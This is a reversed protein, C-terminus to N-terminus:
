PEREKDRYRIALYQVPYAKVPDPTAKPLRLGSRPEPTLNELAELVHPPHIEERQRDLQRAKERERTLRARQKKAAAIEEQMRARVEGSATSAEKAKQADASRMAKAEWESVRQGMFAQCYAEGVYSGEVFLYLVSVDRRDYYLELDKGQLRNLLGPCVYWQGQFSLRSGDHVQYKHSRIKRNTAKMLLLKLDDPAGLYQPVGTQRVAEEWLVSRIQRRLGDWSQQYDDVIARYFYRELEELTMAGAKAATEADHIGHSTNPLRREFRQTMWRFLAEVTGKASPCYPPAQETIIGLRDVLVQRARESTFIKGRDHFIVAPKGYCPWPHQCGAQLVLRDKPELAMKVLRMYDEESLPGLALIASMIAATKVCILVAAHVQRTVPIGDPTVVYLELSHEDVQALQAPAPISLAFSRPSQRDRRPGRMQEREQRVQPEQKLLHIYDCVQHYSPLPIATATEEQLRKAIRKIEAHETIATMSLKTPLLYLRRIVEQFAPHLDRERSYTAHPICAHVGHKRTRQVLRSLTSRAIQHERAADVVTTGSLVAEVARVNRLFRERVPQDLTSDDFTALLDERQERKEQSSEEPLVVLSEESLESPLPDPLIAPSDTALCILPTLRTLAVSSLDVLLHGCAAADACRKWVAAEREAQSWRERLREVVEQVCAAEGPPWVVQLAESLESWAPFAQRRAHLFVLNAHRTKSLTAETGIWYVGEQQEAVKRAAEAKARNRQQRKDQELGAEAILLRGDLLQGVADPLYVHAKGEFLYNITYPTPLPTTIKYTSAFTASIDGRGYWCVQPHYELYLLLQEEMQSCFPQRTPRLDGTKFSPIWGSISEGAIKFLDIGRVGLESM